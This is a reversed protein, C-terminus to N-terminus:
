DTSMSSRDSPTFASTASRRARSVRLRPRIPIWGREWRRTNLVTDIPNSRVGRCCASRRCRWCWSEPAPLRSRSGEGHFGRTTAEQPYCPGRRLIRSGLDHLALVIALDVALNGPAFYWSYGVPASLISYGGVQIMGFTILLAPVVCGQLARTWAPWLGWAALPFTLYPVPTQELFAVLFPPQGAWWGITSQAAKVKLSHPLPSGFVVTASAVWPVIVIVAGLMLPEFRRWALSRSRLSETALILGLLAVGKPRVLAALGTLVGTQVTAGHEQYSLAALVIFALFISTELGASKLVTPGFAAVVASAMALAPEGGPWARLMGWGILFIGAGYLALLVGPVASVAILLLEYLPATTPNSIADGNYSWGKGDVVNHAVRLYIFADDVLSKDLSMVIALAAAGLCLLLASRVGPAWPLTTTV